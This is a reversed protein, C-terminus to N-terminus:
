QLFSDGMKKLWFAGVRTNPHVWGHFNSYDKWSKFIKWFEKQREIDEKTEVWKGEVRQHRERFAEIIDNDDLNLFNIGNKLYEESDLFNSLLIITEATM